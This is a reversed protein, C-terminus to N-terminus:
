IREIAEKNPIAPIGGYETCTIAGVKNAFEVIFKFEEMSIDKNDVSSIAYLIAGIFADGAGTSDKQEVEMSSILTFQGNKILITGKNGLTIFVTELQSNLMFEIAKEVKRKGTLILAEEESLKICNARKMFHWCCRKYEEFKESNILSNRYNPDFSIYANKDLSYNLLRYYSEKLNGNLFATASGFHVISDGNIDEPNINLIYNEDAGRNFQFGRKGNEDLTVFALTTQGDKIMYRTDVENEKFINDLYEGFDDNGIQGLFFSNGGLKKITVAVNAPSGGASRIFVDVLELKSTRNNSIFDILAEGICYVKKM